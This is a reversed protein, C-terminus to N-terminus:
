AGEYGRNFTSMLFCVSSKKGRTGHTGWRNRRRTQAQQAHASATLKPANRRQQGANDDIIPRKLPKQCALGRSHTNTIATAQVPRGLPNNPVPQCQDGIRLVSTALPCFRRRGGRGGALFLMGAPIVGSLDISPVAADGGAGLTISSGLLATPKVMISLAMAVKIDRDLQAEADSSIRSDYHRVRKAARNHRSTTANSAQSSALSRLRAQQSRQAAAAVAGSNKGRVRKATVFSPKGRNYPMLIEDGVQINKTAVIHGHSNIKANGTGSSALNIFRAFCSTTATADIYKDKNLRFL